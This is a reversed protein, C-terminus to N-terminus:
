LVDVPPTGRRKEESGVGRHHQTAEGFSLPPNGEPRLPVIQGGGSSLNGGGALLRGRVERKERRKKKPNCRRPWASEALKEQKKKKLRELQGTADKSGGGALKTGKEKENGGAL